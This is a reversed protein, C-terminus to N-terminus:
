KDKSASKSQELIQKILEHRDLVQGQGLPLTEPSAEGKAAAQAVKRDLDAKQLQLQIMKLKKNTKAVKATIAHGLMSSASNFIESAFRSDVQFGLDMLNDFAEKAKASLEDMEADSAELGKVAPLANEIKDIADLTEETLYSEPIDEEIPAVTEKPEDDPLNFLDQLQKTM